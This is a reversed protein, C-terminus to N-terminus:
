KSVTCAAHELPVAPRHLLEDAVGDHGDEADRRHVLVIRQAGDASSGLDTLREQGQVGLELAVVADLDRRAGADVGALDDDPTASAVLPERGAVGDVDRRPELLCCRGALHQQTRRGERRDGSRHM